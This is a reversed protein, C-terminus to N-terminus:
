ERVARAQRRYDWPKQGAYADWVGLGKTIAQDEATRMVSGNPCGDVYQPYVYAAGELVLQSNLHIEEGQQVAVNDALPIFAEAIMRGYQDIEVPLLIIQGNGQNVLQQLRDRAEIGGPQELEPADVGCLRVKTEKRGNTVRFTDGDYVSGPVLEVFQSSNSDTIPKTTVSMWQKFQPLPRTTIAGAVLALLLVTRIDRFKM